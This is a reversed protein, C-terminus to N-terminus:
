AAASALAENVASLIANSTITAGSVTDVGETGNAEVILDPLQEIANSGIGETESNEGIEVSVIAGNEVTVTVPVDGGIGTGTAEYTGDPVTSVDVVETSAEDDSSEDSEDDSSTALASVDIAGDPVSWGDPLSDAFTNLHCQACAITQTEHCDACTIIGGDSGATEHMTSFQVYTDGAHMDYIGYADATSSVSVSDTTEPIAWSALTAQDEESLNVAFDVHCEACVLTSQKHVSHCSSCTIELSSHTEDDPINHPDYDWDETAEEKTSSTTGDHCTGCFEDNVFEESMDPLPDTFSDSVFMVVENVLDLLKAQSWHCGLCTIGAAEHATVALAPDESYYADVYSAMVEHCVTSCFSPQEHWHLCAVLAAIVVVSFASIVIPWVRKKPAPAGDPVQVETTEASVKKEDSM